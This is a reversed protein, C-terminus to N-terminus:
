RPVARILPWLPNRRYGTRYRHVSPYTSAGSLRLHSPVEYHRQNFAQGSHLRHYADARARWPTHKMFASSAPSGRRRRFHRRHDCEHEDAPPPALRHRDGRRRSSYRAYHRTIFEHTNPIHYPLQALFELAYFEHAAGHKTTYTAIDDQISFKELSPPSREIYTAFLQESDKNHFLDGFWVGFGTHDHSLIQAM